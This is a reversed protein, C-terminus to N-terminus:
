IREFAFIKRTEDNYNNELCEYAVEILSQIVELLYENDYKPTETFISDM